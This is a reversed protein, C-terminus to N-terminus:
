QWGWRQELLSSFRKQNERKMQNANALFLRRPALGKEPNGYELDFAEEPFELRVDDGTKVVKARLAAQYWDEGAELADQQIKFLLHQATEEAADLIDVDLGESAIRRWNKVGEEFGGKVKFYTM